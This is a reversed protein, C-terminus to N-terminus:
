DGFALRDERTEQLLVKLDTLFDAGSLLVDRGGKLGDGFAKAVELGGQFTESQSM